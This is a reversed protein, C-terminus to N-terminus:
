PLFVSLPPIGILQKYQSIRDALVPHLPLVDVPLATEMIHIARRMKDKNGVHQYHELLQLFIVRYNNLLGSIRSYDKDAVGNVDSFNELNLMHKETNGADLRPAYDGVKVPLLKQTLGSIQLYEELGKLTGSSSGLSFYVPRKWANTRIIDVMVAFNPSLYTRSEDKLDPEVTWEMQSVEAPLQYRTRIDDFIPISIINSKWKYARLAAIQEESWSIPAPAPVLVGGKKLVTVYWSRNLLAFPIVTVDQRFGEVYQLYWASDTDADGGTFLIADSECSRLMNRNYEILWDPFGGERRGERLAVLMEDLNAAQMSNIFRAGYEAGIFYFANGLNPNLLAAKRLYRLVNDSLDRGYGTLPMSDYCLYHTYYGLYYYAEADDPNEDIAKELLAIALPYNEARFALQAEEILESAQALTISPILTISVTLLFKGLVRSHM